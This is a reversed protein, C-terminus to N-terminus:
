KITRMRRPDKERGARCTRNKRQSRVGGETELLPVWCLLFLLNGPSSHLFYPRTSFQAAPRATPYKRIHSAKRTSEPTQFSPHNPPASASLWPKPTVFASRLASPSILCWFHDPFPTPLSFWHCPSRLIKWFLNRSKQWSTGAALEATSAESIDGPCLGM